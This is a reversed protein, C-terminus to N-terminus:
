VLLPTGLAQNSLLGSGGQHTGLRGIGISRLPQQPQALTRHLPLALDMRQLHLGQAQGLESFLGTGPGFLYGAVPSFDVLMKLVKLPSSDLRLGLKFFEIQQESVFLLSMGLEVIQDGCGLALEALGALLLAIKLAPRM